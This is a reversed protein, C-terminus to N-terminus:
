VLHGRRRLVWEASITALFFLFLVPSNWFETREITRTQRERRPLQDVLKDIQDIDVYTGGSKEAISRLLARNTEPNSLELDSGVVLFETQQNALTKGNETLTALVQHRGSSSPVFSGFSSEPSSTSQKVPVSIRKGNDDLVEIAIQDTAANALIRPNDTNEGHTGERTRAFAAVAADASRTARIVVEKGVEYDPRDTTVVLPTRKQELDRGTLWRITQGWFRAYLTDSQGVVRTLRSWRWTTDPAIVMTHGKGYRQTVIMPAPQNGLQVNSNVALIEAGPKAGRVLPAGLLMPTANWLTGDKVRDGTIQFTPHQRGAETLQLVFPEETQRPEQEAFLVPLADALQTKVFGDAGFSRYGGLVLLAKGDGIWRILTQCEAAELEDGDMDGLVVLDFNKLREETMLIEESSQRGGNAPNVRRVVSVLSVDPDDELRSKLFKYEYRLFGEVYLVRIAEGTVHLPFHKANNALAREGAESSVVVTYVFHGSETPTFTLAVPQEDNGEAFSVEASAVEEAGRKLLVKGSVAPGATKAVIVTVKLENNVMAKPPAQAEKVALDLRSANPDSPFGVCSVPVPLNALALLDQRGTNDVGDSILVVSTLLKSRLRSTAATVARVLDTREVKPEKPLDDGLPQGNIDFVALKTQPGNASFEIGRLKGIAQIARTFRPQGTPDALSMSVSNDIVVAIHGADVDHREHTWTPKALTLLLALIGGVRLALLGWVRRSDTREAIQQYTAWLLWAGGALLMVWLWPHQVNEFQFLALLLKM